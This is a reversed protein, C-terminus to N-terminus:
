ATPILTKSKIFWYGLAGLTGTALGGGAVPKLPFSSRTASSASSIIIPEDMIVDATARPMLVAAGNIHRLVGTITLTSSTLSSWIIGSTKSAEITVNQDDVQLILTSGNRTVVSGHLTVLSPSIATQTTSPVFEEHGNITIASAGTLKIRQEGNATSTIGTVSIIDGLTLTPWAGSNMYLMAGTIVALQKGFTGPLAIVTGQYSVLTDDAIGTLSPIKLAPKSVKKTATKTATKAVPKAAVKATATSKINSKSTVVTKKAAVKILDINANVTPKNSASATQTGTTTIEEIFAGELEWGALPLPVPAMVPPPSNPETITVTEIIISNATGPTPSQTVAWEDNIRGISDDYKPAKLSATGYSVTDVLQSNSNLLTITDGDNNLKGLPNVILHYSNATLEGSLITAKGSADVISWGSINIPFTEANYLEIWEDYGTNPAALFESILINGITTPSPEAVVEPEIIVQPTPTDTIMPIIADVQPLPEIAQTETPPLISDLQETIITPELTELSTTENTTIINVAEVTPQQTDAAQGIAIVPPLPEIAVTEVGSLAGELEGMVLPPNNPAEIETGPEIIEDPAIPPLYITDLIFDPTPTIETVVEAVLEIPTPEVIIPEISLAGETEGMDLSPNNPEAPPVPDEIAIPEPVPDPPIPIVAVGPTGLQTADLLNQSATATQWALTTLNREMSAFIPTTSGFDPTGTDDLTDIVTSGTNVLSIVLKSNPLSLATTVFDAHNTLTSSDGPAYNSILFTGYAPIIAGQPLALNSGSTGSGTISWGSLDVPIGGLNALELWEDATNRVSGGWEVEGIVVCPPQEARASLTFLPSLLGVFVLSTVLVYLKKM